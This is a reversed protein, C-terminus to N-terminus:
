YEPTAPAPVFSRYCVVSERDNADTSSLAAFEAHLVTTNLGGALGEVTEEASSAAQLRPYHFYVRGGSVEKLAFVASWEQFFTAGEHDVYAVVKQLKAGKAPAGGLL